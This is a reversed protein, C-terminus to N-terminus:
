SAAAAGAWDALACVERYFAEEEMGLLAAGYLLCHEDSIVEGYNLVPIMYAVALPVLEPRERLKPRLYLVRGGQEPSDPDVDPEAFQHPAMRGCEFVLRTPYRLCEPDRLLGDLKEFSLPGHKQRALGAQALLHERLSQQGLRELEAPSLHRLDASDM